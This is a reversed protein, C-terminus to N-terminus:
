PNFINNNIGNDLVFEDYPPQSPSQGNVQINNNTVDSNNCDELIVAYSTVSNNNETVDITNDYILINDSTENIKIGTTTPYIAEYIYQNLTITDGTSYFTNETINIDSSNYIGLAMVVNGTVNVTNNIVKTDEVNNLEIGYSVTSNLTIENDEIDNSYTESSSAQYTDTSLVIGYSFAEYSATTVNRLTCNGYIKNGKFLSNTTATAQIGCLHNTANITITNNNVTISNVFQSLSIGYNFESGTTNVTNYKVTTNESGGKVTIGEVTTYDFPPYDTSSKVTVNNLSIRSNNVNSYVIGSHQIAGLWVGTSNDWGMSQPLGTVAISNICVTTNNSNSIKIGFTEGATTKTVSISNNIVEINDYGTSSIAAGSTGDDNEIILNKITVDNSNIIFQTDEFTATSTSTFVIPATITISGGTLTSSFTGSFEVADYNYINNMDTAYNAPTISIPNNYTRGTCTQTEELNEINNETNVLNNDSASNQESVVDSAVDAPTDTIVTTDDIDDTASVTSVAVLLTFLTLVFFISKINKNFMIKKM